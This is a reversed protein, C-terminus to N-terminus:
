VLYSNNKYNLKLFVFFMLSFALFSSGGYSFYPLPIGVTPFLGMVMSINLTFHYLLISAISYGYFRSFKSKQNEALTYIRIIFLCYVIILGCSGLFGWEEGVTTFIYDTQQEPVFEGSTISGNKYGKGFFEGSGIATKAYLLNYGSTDRYKAEGEILVLIREKQHPKLVTNFFTYSFFSSAFLISQTIFFISVLFPILSKNVKQSQKKYINISYFILLSILASFILITHPIEKNLICYIFLCIFALCSSLSFSWYLNFNIDKLRSTANKFLYYSYLLVCIFLFSIVQISPYILSFLFLLAVFLITLFVYGTLGERYLPILFASFIIVSGFDPQLLILLVPIAIIILCAIINKFSLSYEFKSQVFHSLFLAVFLKVFEAPQLSFGGFVYWAKAGNVEKGIVFLGLLLLISFIYFVASYLELIIIDLISIVFLFCISIIAWMLQKEGLSESVSYVNLIGFFILVLYLILLQWDTYKILNKM